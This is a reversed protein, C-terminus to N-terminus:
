RILVRLTRVYDFSEQDRESTKSLSVRPSSNRRAPTRKTDTSRSPKPTGPKLKKYEPSLKEDKVPAPKPKSKAATARPQGNRNSLEEPTAQCPRNAFTTSYLVNLLYAAHLQEFMLSDLQQCLRTLLRLQLFSEMTHAM